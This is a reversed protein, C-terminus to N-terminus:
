VGLELRLTLLAGVEQPSRWWGSAGGSSFAWRRRGAGMSQKGRNSDARANGGQKYGGTASTNSAKPNGGFGRDAAAKNNAGAGPRNGGANNNRVTRARM